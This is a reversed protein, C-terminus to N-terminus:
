HGPYSYEPILRITVAGSYFNRNGAISGGYQGQFTMVHGSTIFGVGAVSLRTDATNNDPKLGGSPGALTWDGTIRLNGQQNSEYSGDKGSVLCAVAIMWYGTFPCTWTGITTYGGNSAVSTTGFSTDYNGVGSVAYHANYLTVEANYAALDTADQAQWTVGSLYVGSVYLGNRASDRESTRTALVSADASLDAADKAKWLGATTRWMRVTADIYSNADNGPDLIVTM